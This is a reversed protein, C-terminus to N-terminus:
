VNNNEGKKPMHLKKDLFSRKMFQEPNKVMPLGMKTRFDSATIQGNQYMEWLTEADPWPYTNISIGTEPNFYISVSQNRKEMAEDIFTRAKAWFESIDLPENLGGTWREDPIPKLIINQSARLTQEVPVEIEEGNLLKQMDAHDLHIVTNM